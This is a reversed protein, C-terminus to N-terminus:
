QLGISPISIMSEHSVSGREIHVKVARGEFNKLYEANLYAGEPISEFALIGYDGPAIGRISFKGDFDTLMTRFLVPSRKNSLVPFLVVQAGIAARQKTDLVIGDVLGGPYDLLLELVGLGRTDLEFGTDRVEIGGYRVSALFMDPDTKAVGVAYRSPAVDPLALAGDASVPRPRASGLSMALSFVNNKISPRNELDVLSVDLTELKIATASSPTLTRGAREQISIRGTLKVVPQVTVTGADVDRDVITVSLRSFGQPSDGMCSYRYIDYSGAYLLPSSWDNDTLQSFRYPLFPQDVNLNQPTLTKNVLVSVIPQRIGQSRQVM